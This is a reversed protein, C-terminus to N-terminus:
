LGLAGLLGLGGLGRGLLLGLASGRTVESTIVPAGSHRVSRPGPTQRRPCGVRPLPLTGTRPEAVRARGAAWPDRGGAFRVPAGRRGRRVGRNGPNGPPTAANPDKFVLPRSDGFVAGGGYPCTLRGPATTLRAPPYTVFRIGEAAPSGEM